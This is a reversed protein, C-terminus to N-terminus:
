ELNGNVLVHSYYTKMFNPWDKDSIHYKGGHIEKEKDPIRTHTADESNATIHEQLYKILNINKTTAM